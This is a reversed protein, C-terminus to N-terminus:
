KAAPSCGSRAHALPDASVKQLLTPAEKSMNGKANFENKRLWPMVDVVAIYPGSEVLALPERQRVVVERIYDAMGSTRAYHAGVIGKVGM